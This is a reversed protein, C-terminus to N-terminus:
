MYYCTNWQLFSCVRQCQTITVTCCLVVHVNYHQPLNHSQLTMFFTMFMIMFKFCNFICIKDEIYFKSFQTARWFVIIYLLLKQWCPSGSMGWQTSSSKRRVIKHTNPSPLLKKLFNLFLFGVGPSFLVVLDNIGIYM